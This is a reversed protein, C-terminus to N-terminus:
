ETKLRVISSHSLSLLEQFTHLFINLLLHIRKCCFVSTDRSMRTVAIPQFSGVRLYQIAKSSIKELGPPVQLGKRSAMADAERDSITDQFSLVLEPRKKLVNRLDQM